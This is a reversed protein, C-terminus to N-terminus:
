AFLWIAGFPLAVAGVGHSTGRTMAWKVLQSPALPPSQAEFSLHWGVRTEIGIKVLPVM